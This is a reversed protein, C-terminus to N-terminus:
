TSCGSRVVSGHRWMEAIAAVDLEFEHKGHLLASAKPTAGADHRVRHRQPDDQRYHGSGSARLAALGEPGPALLTRRAADVVRAAGADGGLMLAYGNALGWVGGSVGCDVFHIGRAGLAAARRM